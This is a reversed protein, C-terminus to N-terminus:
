IDLEITLREHPRTPTAENAIFTVTGTASGEVAQVYSYGLVPLWEDLTLTMSPGLSFGQCMITPQGTTANRLMAVMTYGNSYIQRRGILTSQALGDLFNVRSSVNNNSPRWTTSGYTWTTASDRSYAITRVRNYANYVGLINNTGGSAASPAFSMGTQGNATCFISGLYTATNAAIGSTGAGSSNTLTISNANVWIGNLLTLETTGAGTGRKTTHNTGTQTGTGTSSTNINTGAAANAITTSISFANATLGTASVFYTTGATIGTPTATGATFVVPAGESLGHATWSCVGPSASTWTVTATNTWAPGAGISVTGANNWAFLDYVNNLLQNSTDLAMTLQAFVQASWTTGDFIPVANGQYPPYYVSTQATADAIMVPTNSTLTLRGQPMIPAFGGVLAMLDRSREVVSVTASGSLNLLSGTSSSVLVRSLTTGSVTYTGTGIEWATGDQILYPYTTANAAGAAAFSQYSSVASGLTVTGSGTTATTMKVRDLLSFAAM